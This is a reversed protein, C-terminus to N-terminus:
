SEKKTKRWSTVTRSFSNTPLNQNSTPGITGSSTTSEPTTELTISIKWLTHKILLICVDRSIKASKHAHLLRTLREQKNLLLQRQRQWTM